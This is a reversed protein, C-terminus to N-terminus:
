TLKNVTIQVSVGSGELQLHITTGTGGLTLVMYLYVGELTNDGALDPTNYIIQYSGAAETTLFMHRTRSGILLEYLQSPEWAETAAISASSGSALGTFVQTRTTPFAGGGGGGPTHHANPMAAHLAILAAVQAATQGPVIANIANTILTQVQALTVATPLAAIAMDVITQVQAASLGLTLGAIAADILAQAQVTTIGGGSLMINAIQANVWAQTAVREGPLLAGFPSGNTYRYTLLETRMFYQGAIGDVTLAVGDTFSFQRPYLVTPTLTSAIWMLFAATDNGADRWAQPYPQVAGGNTTYGDDVSFTAANVPTDLAPQWATRLAVPPLPLRGDIIDLIGLNTTGGMGPVHHIEPLAAHADILAQVAATDIGSLNGPAAMAEATSGARHIRYPLLSEGAGSNRLVAAYSTYRSAAPRDFLTGVIRRAAENLVADPTTAYADGLYREIQATAYGLLEAVETATAPGSGGRIRAVMEPATITVPM